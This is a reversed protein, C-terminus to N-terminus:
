ESLRACAHKLLLDKDWPWHFQALFFVLLAPVFSAKVGWAAFFSRTQEQAVSALASDPPLLLADIARKGLESHPTGPYRLRYYDVLYQFGFQFWDSAPWHKTETGEWDVLGSVEGQTILINSHHADGYRWAWPFELGILRNAIGRLAKADRGPIHELVPSLVESVTDVDIAVVEGMTQQQFETLWRRWAQWYRHHWKSATWRAHGLYMPQGPLAQELSVSLGHIQPLLITEPVTRLINGSLQQRVQRVLQVSRELSANQEVRRSIKIVGVLKDGKGKADFLFLIVRRRSQLVYRLDKPQPRDPWLEEWGRLDSAIIQSFM